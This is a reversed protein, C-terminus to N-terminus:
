GTKPDGEYNDWAMNVSIPQTALSPDGARGQFSWRVYGPTGATDGMSGLATATNTTENLHFRLFFGSSTVPYSGQLEFLTITSTSDYSYFGVFKSNGMDDRFQMNTKTGNKGFWFVYANTASGVNLSVKRQYVSQTSTEEVTATIQESFDSPVDCLTKISSSLNINQSTVVNPLNNTSGISALAACSLRFLGMLDWFNSSSCGSYLSNDMYAKPSNEDVCEGDSDYINKSGWNGGGQWTTDSILANSFSSSSNTFIAFDKVTNQAKNMDSAPGDSAATVIKKDDNKGCSAVFFLSLYVVPWLFRKM